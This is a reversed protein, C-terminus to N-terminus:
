MRDHQRPVKPIGKLIYESFHPMWWHPAPGDTHDPADLIYVAPDDTGDVIVGACTGSHGHEDFAIFRQEGCSWVSVEEADLPWMGGNSFISVLEPTQWFELLAAPVIV